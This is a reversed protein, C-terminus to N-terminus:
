YQIMSFSIDWYVEGTSEDVCVNLDCVRNGVYVSIPRRGHQPDIYSIDVQAPVVATLLVQSGVQMLEKWSADISVMGQRIRDRQMFGLENRTTSQSDLDAPTVRFTTPAPMDVGGIVLFASM